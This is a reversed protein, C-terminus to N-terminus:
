LVNTVSLHGREKFDMPVETRAPLSLADGALSFYFTNGSLFMIEEISRPEGSTSFLLEKEELFAVYLWSCTEIHIAVKLVFNHLGFNVIEKDGM